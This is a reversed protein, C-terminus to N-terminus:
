NYKRVILFRVRKKVVDDHVRILIKHILNSAEKGDAMLINAKKIAMLTHSGYLYFLLCSYAAVQQSLETQYSFTRYLSYIAFIWVLLCIGVNFM